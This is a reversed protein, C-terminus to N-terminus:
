LRRCTDPRASATPAQIVTLQQAAEAATHCLTSDSGLKSQSLALSAARGCYQQLRARPAAAVYRHPLTIRRSTSDPGAQVLSVKKPGGASCTCARGRCPGCLRGPMRLLLLLRCTHSLELKTSSTSKTSNQAGMINFLSQDRHMSVAYSAEFLTHQASATSVTCASLLSGNPSSATSCRPPKTSARM